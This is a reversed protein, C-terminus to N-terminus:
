DATEETDASGSEENKNENNSIQEIIDKPIEIKETEDESIVLPESEVPAENGDSDLELDMMLIIKKSEADVEQVTVNQTDGEKFSMLIQQKESKGTRKLPVIGELGDELKFIIGKDLIKHIEGKVVKGSTFKESIAIWPNEEIQKM